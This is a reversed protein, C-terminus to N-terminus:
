VKELLPLEENSEVKENLTLYQRNYDDFDTYEFYNCFLEEGAKIDRAAYMSKFDSSNQLNFNRSSHNMFQANDTCIVYLNNEKYSLREIAQFSPLAVSGKLKEWEEGTYTIDVLPSFAWVVDRKKIDKNTFIGIGHHNSRSVFTEITLMAISALTFTSFVTM